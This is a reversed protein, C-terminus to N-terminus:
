VRASRLNGFDHGRTQRRVLVRGVGDGRAADLALATRPHNAAEDPREADRPVCPTWWVGSPNGHPGRAPRHHLVHAVPADPLSWTRATFHLWLQVCDPDRLDTPVRTAARQPASRWDRDGAIPACSPEADEM